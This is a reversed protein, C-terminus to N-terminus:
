PYEAPAKLLQWTGPQRADAALLDWEMEWSWEQIRTSPLMYYKLIMRSKATQKERDLKSYKYDAEVINLDKLEEFKEVLTRGEEPDRFFASATQFEKWRMAKLFQKSTREYGQGLDVKSACGSLLVILGILFLFFIRRM